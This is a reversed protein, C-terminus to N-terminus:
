GTVNAARVLRREYSDMPGGHRLILRALAASKAGAAIRTKTTSAGGRTINHRKCWLMIGARCWGWSRLVAADIMGVRESEAVRAARNRAIVAGSLTKAVHWQGDGQDAVHKIVCRLRKGVIEIAKIKYVGERDTDAVQLVLLGDVLEPVPSRHVNLLDVLSARITHTADWRHYTCRRSYQEGRSTVTEASANGTPVSEFIRTVDGSHAPPRFHACGGNATRRMGGLIRKIQRVKRQEVTLRPAIQRWARRERGVNRQDAWETVARDALDYREMARKLTCCGNRRANIRDRIAAVADRKSFMGNTTTSTVALFDAQAVKHTRCVHRVHPTTKM